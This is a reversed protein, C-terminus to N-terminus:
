PQGVASGSGNAPCGPSSPARILLFPARAAPDHIQYVCIKTQILLPAHPPRSPPAQLQADTAHCPITIMGELHLLDGNQDVHEALADMINSSNLASLAAFNALTDVGQVDQLTPPVSGVPRLFTDQFYEAVTTPGSPVAKFGGDLLKFTFQTQVAFVHELDLDARIIKWTSDGSWPGRTTDIM